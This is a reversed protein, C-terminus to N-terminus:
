TKKFHGRTLVVVFRKLSNKTELCFVLNCTAQSLSLKEENEWDGKANDSNDTRKEEFSIFPLGQQAPRM